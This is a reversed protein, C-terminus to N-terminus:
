DTCGGRHINSLVAMFLFCRNLHIGFTYVSNVLSYVGGSPEHACFRNRRARFFDHLQKPLDVRKDLTNSHSTQGKRKVNTTVSIALLIANVLRVDIICLDSHWQNFFVPQM